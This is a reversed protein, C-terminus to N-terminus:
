GMKKGNDENPLRRNEQHNFSLGPASFLTALQGTGKTTGVDNIKNQTQVEYESKIDVYIKSQMQHEEMIEDIRQNSNPMEYKNTKDRLEIAANLQQDLTKGLQDLSSTLVHEIESSRLRRKPPMKSDQTSIVECCRKNGASTAPVGRTHETTDHSESTQCNSYLKDNIDHWACNSSATVAINSENRPGCHINTECDFPNTKDQQNNRLYKAATVNVVSVSKSISTKVSSPEPPVLALPPTKVSRAFHFAAARISSDITPQPVVNSRHISAAPTSPDSTPSVYECAYSGTSSDGDDDYEVVPSKQLNQILCLVAKELQQPNNSAPEDISSQPIKTNVILSFKNKMEQVRRKGEEEDLLTNVCIFSRVEQTEKDVELYGKSHLYIFHGNRTILRYTSEGFSSKCDYMQRLAVIVWRVDDQHMFTFPSLNQVEDTMYGAVLGIGQDCDIIRGDILHRTKYKMTNAEFVSNIVKPLRIIRTTAILVIDNGSITHLPITDDRGRSRRIIQLTSPFTNVRKDRPAADSRRFNGEIKVIEYSTPESRPGARALRVTFSRKDARLRKDIHEEEEKTRKRENPDGDCQANFLEDLDTPILQQKMINHDEPHTINLINQGYLDIQCHGLHQEVSSSVLVIEGHCTIVIFFRDLLEMLSDTYQPRSQNHSKGFARDITEFARKFDLFLAAIITKRPRKKWESVVFNIASECSHNKRFGSQNLSLINNTELYTQLQNKVVSEMIKKFIKLTNIPRFEECKKTKAIKEVPVVLSDKWENPFVGSMLSHNILKTLFPGLVNWNDLIIKPSVNNWDKKNKLKKCIAKLECIQIEKFHFTEPCHDINNIYIEKDISQDILEISEIFYKNLKDAIENEDSIEENKYIISSIEKVDKSLILNKLIRWMEKQNTASNIKLKFYKNKKKIIEQKYTKCISKYILWSNTDDMVRAAQYARIKNIKLKKLTSNFWKNRSSRNRITRSRTNSVVLDQICKELIVTNENVDYANSHKLNKNLLMRNFERQNYHFQEIVKYKPKIVSERTAKEIVISEHDSIKLSHQVTVRLNHINTLVYDILTKSNRTIRTNENMKQMIGNDNTIRELERKYLSDKSWDINFDGAIIFDKSIETITELKDQFTNCFERESSNPSRYLGMIYLENNDVICKITLTWIKM